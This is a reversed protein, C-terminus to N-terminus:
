VAHATRCDARGGVVTGELVPEGAFDSSREMPRVGQELTQRLGDATPQGAFPRPLSGAGRRPPPGPPPARHVTGTPPPAGPGNSRATQVFVASIGNPSTRGYPQTAASIPRGFATRATPVASAWLGTGSMTGQWRTNRGSPVIPCYESPPGSLLTVM